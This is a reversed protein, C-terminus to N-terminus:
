RAGALIVGVGMAMATALVMALVALGTNWRNRWGRRALAAREDGIGIIRQMFVDGNIKPWYGGAEEMAADIDADTLGFTKIYDPEGPFLRIDYGSRAALLAYIPLWHRDHGNDEHIDAPQDHKGGPRGSTLLHALEHLLIMNQWDVHMEGFDKNVLLVGGTWPGGPERLSLVAAATNEDVIENVADPLLAAIEAPLLSKNYTNQM